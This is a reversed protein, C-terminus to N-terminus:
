VPSPACLVLLPAPNTVTRACRHVILSADFRTDRCALRKGILTVQSMCASMRIVITGTIDFPRLIVNAYRFVVTAAFLGVLSRIAIELAPRLINCLRVCSRRM